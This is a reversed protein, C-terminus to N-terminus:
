EAERCKIFITDHRVVGVQKGYKRRVELFRDCETMCEATRVFKKTLPCTVAYSGKSEGKASAKLEKM